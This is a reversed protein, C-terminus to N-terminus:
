AVEETIKSWAPQERGKYGAQKIKEGIYYNRYAAIPDAQRYIEPMAQPVETRPGRPLWHPAKIALGKLVDLTKHVRGYRHTYEACLALGLDSLWRYNELSECAWLACPHSMHTPKYMWSLGLCQRHHVGSLLQATEVIMKLVHKDHHYRAALWPDEDLFFINM